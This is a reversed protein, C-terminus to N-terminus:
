ESVRRRGETRGEYLETIKLGSSKRRNRTCAGRRLVGGPGIESTERFVIDQNRPSIKRRLRCHERGRTKGQENTEVRKGEREKEERRKRTESKNGRDVDRIGETM